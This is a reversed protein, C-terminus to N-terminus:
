NCKTKGGWNLDDCHLYDMNENYIVWATCAYGGEYTCHKKFAFGTEESTGYPIVAGSKTM